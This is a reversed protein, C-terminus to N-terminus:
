FVEKIRKRNWKNVHKMGMHMRFRSYKGTLICILAWQSYYGWLAPQTSLCGTARLLKEWLTSLLALHSNRGLHGREKVMTWAYRTANLEGGELDSESGPKM